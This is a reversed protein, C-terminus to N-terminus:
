LSPMRSKEREKLSLSPRDQAQRLLTLITNPLYPLTCVM